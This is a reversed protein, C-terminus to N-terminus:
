KTPKLFVRNKTVKLIKCGAYGFSIYDKYVNWKGILTGSKSIYIESYDLFSQHNYDTEIIWFGMKKYFRVCDVMNGRAM